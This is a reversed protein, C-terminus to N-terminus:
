LFFLFMPFALLFNSMSLQLVPYAVIFHGNCRTVFFVTLPDLLWWTELSRLLYPPFFFPCIM